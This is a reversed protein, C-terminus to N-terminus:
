TSNLPLWQKGRGWFKDLLGCAEMPCEPSPNWDCPPVEFWIHRVAPSKTWCLANEDQPTTSEIIEKPGSWKEKVKWSGPTKTSRVESSKIETKYLSRPIYNWFIRCIPVDVVSLFRDIKDFPLIDSMPSGAVLNAYQRGRERKKLFYLIFFGLLFEFFFIQRDKFLCFFLERAHRSWWNERSCSNCLCSLSLELWPELYYALAM